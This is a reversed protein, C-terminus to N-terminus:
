SPEKLAQTAPAIPHCYGGSCSCKHLVGQPAAPWLRGCSDCRSLGEGVTGAVPVITLGNAELATLIATAHRADVVTEYLAKEVAERTWQKDQTM